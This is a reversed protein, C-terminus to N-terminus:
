CHTQTEPAPKRPAHWPDVIRTLGGVVAMCICRVAKGIAGFGIRMGDKTLYVTSEGANLKINEFGVKEISSKISEESPFEKMSGDLKWIRDMSAYSIDFAGDTVKSLQISRQILAFLEKDVQVPKIGSNRNIMSTESNPDWSSIISEIRAIEDVALDIYSNGLDENEAVVTIDFRSGMLKM